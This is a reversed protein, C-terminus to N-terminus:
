FCLSLLGIALTESVAEEVSGSTLVPSTTERKKAEINRMQSIPIIIATCRGYHSTVFLDIHTLNKSSYKACLLLTYIYM